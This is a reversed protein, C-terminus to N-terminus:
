GTEGWIKKDIQISAADVKNICAQIPSIWTLIGGPTKEPSIDRQKLWELLDSAKDGFNNPRSPVEVSARWYPHPLPM